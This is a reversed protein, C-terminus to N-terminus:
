RGPRAAGSSVGVAALAAATFVLGMVRPDFWSGQVPFLQWALNSSAHFLAQGFVCRGTRNYLWVMLVRGSLTWLAWWAIWDATRHAQILAVLHWAAWAAGLILSARLPGWRAQLPDLAYGSWGLEEAFAAPLFMLALTLARLFEVQPAPVASGTLRMVVFALAFLAPATLLLPAFLATPRVLAADLARSLLAVAGRGGGAGFALIVAALAPCVVALAAIPLGPLLSLGTAAGLGWFPITLAFVLGFYILPRGELPPRAEPM